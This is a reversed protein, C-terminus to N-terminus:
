EEARGNREVLCLFSRRHNLGEDSGGHEREAEAAVGERLRCDGAGRSSCRWHGGFRHGMVVVVVVMPMPMVVMVHMIHRRGRHRCGGRGRM